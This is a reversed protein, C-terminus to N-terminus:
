RDPPIEYYNLLFKVIQMFPASLTHSAYAEGRPNKLVLLVIFKADYSPFYGVFTHLFDTKSYGSEGVLQATGTKVAVSYHELRLSGGALTKDTSVTLMRTIEESTEKKLVRRESTPVFERSLGLSYETRKVVHPTVLVGGNALSALARITAIPTM